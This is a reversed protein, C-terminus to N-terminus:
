QIGNMAGFVEEYASSVRHSGFTPLHDTDRYLGYGNEV